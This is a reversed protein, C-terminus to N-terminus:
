GQLALAAAGRRRAGRAFPAPPHRAMGCVRPLLLSVELGAGGRGGWGWCVGVFICGVLRPLFKFF